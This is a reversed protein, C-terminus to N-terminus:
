KAVNSANHANQIWPIISGHKNSNMSVPNKIWKKKRRKRQRAPAHAKGRKVIWYYQRAYEAPNDRSRVTIRNLRQEYTKKTM